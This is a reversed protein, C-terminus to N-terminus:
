LWFMIPTKLADDHPSPSNWKLHKWWRINLILMRPPNAGLIIILFRMLLMIFLMTIICVPCYSHIKALTILNEIKL